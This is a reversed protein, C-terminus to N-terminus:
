GRTPWLDYLAKGWRLAIAIAIMTLLGTLVAIFVQLDLFIDLVYWALSFILTVIASNLVWDAAQAVYSQAETPLVLSLIELVADLIAWCAGAWNVSNIVWALFDRALSSCALLIGACVALAMLAHDKSENWLWSIAAAGLSLVVWVVPM